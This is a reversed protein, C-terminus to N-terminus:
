VVCVARVEKPYLCHSFLPESGTRLTTTRASTVIATASTTAAAVILPRITLTLVAAHAAAAPKFITIPRWKTALGRGTRSAIARGRSFAAFVLVCGDRGVLIELRTVAEQFHV